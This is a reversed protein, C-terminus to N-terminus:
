TVTSSVKQNVPCVPCFWFSDNQSMKNEKHITLKKEWAKIDTQWGM